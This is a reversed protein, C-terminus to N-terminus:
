FFFTYIAKCSAVIYQEWINTYTTPIDFVRTIIKPEFGIIPLTPYIHDPIIVLPVCKEGHLQFIRESVVGYLDSLTIQQKTMNNVRAVLDWSIFEKGSLSNPLQVYNTVCEPNIYPLLKEHLIKHDRFLLGYLYQYNSLKLFDKVLHFDYAQNLTIRRIFNHAQEHYQNVLILLDERDLNARQDKSSLLPEPGFIPESITFNVTETHALKLLYSKFLWNYTLCSGGVLLTFVLLESSSTCHSLASVGPLGFVTNVFSPQALNFAIAPSLKLFFLSVSAVSIFLIAQNKVINLLIKSFWQLPMLRSFFLSIDIFLFLLLIM